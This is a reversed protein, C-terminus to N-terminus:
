FEIIKGTRRHRLVAKKEGAIIQAWLEMGEADIPAEEVAERGNIEQTLDFYPKGGLMGIFKANAPDYIVVKDVTFPEDPTNDDYNEDVCQIMFNGDAAQFLMVLDKGDNEKYVVYRGEGIDKINIGQQDWNWALGHAQAEPATLQGIVETQVDPKDSGTLGWIALVTGSIVGTYAINKGHEDLFDQIGGSVDSLVKGQSCEPHVHFYDGM